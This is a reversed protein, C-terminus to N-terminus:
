IESPRFKDSFFIITAKYLKFSANALSTHCFATKHPCARLSQRFFIPDANEALQFLIKCVQGSHYLQADVLNTCLLSFDNHNSDVLSVM